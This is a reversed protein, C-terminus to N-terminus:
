VSGDQEAQLATKAFFPAVAQQLASGAVAGGRGPFQGV